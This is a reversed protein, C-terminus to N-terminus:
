EQLSNRLKQSTEESIPPINSRQEVNMRELRYTSGSTEIIFSGDSQKGIKTVARTQTTFTKTGTDTPVDAAFSFSRGAVIDGLILAKSYFESVSDKTKTILFPGAVDDGALEHVPPLSENM